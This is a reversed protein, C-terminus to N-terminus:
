RKVALVDTGDFASPYSEAEELEDVAVPGYEPTKTSGLMFGGLKKAWGWPTRTELLRAVLYWSSALVSFLIASVGSETNEPLTLGLNALFTIITAAVLPAVTRIYSTWLTNAQKVGNEIVGDFAM